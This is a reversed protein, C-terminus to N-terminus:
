DGPGDVDLTFHMDDDNRPQFILDRRTSEVLHFLHNALFHFHALASQIRKDSLSFFVYITSKLQKCDIVHFTDGM